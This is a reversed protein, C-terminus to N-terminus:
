NSKKRDCFKLSISVQQISAMNYEYNRTITVVPIHDIRTNGETLTHEQDVKTWSFEDTDKIDAEEIAVNDLGVWSHAIVKVSM